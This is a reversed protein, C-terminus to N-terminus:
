DKQKKLIGEIEDVIKDASDPLALKLINESLSKLKAENQVM